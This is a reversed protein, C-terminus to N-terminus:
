PIAAGDDLAPWVPEARLVLTLGENEGCDAHGVFRSTVWDDKFAFIRVTAGNPMNNFVFQGDFTLATARWPVSADLSEAYLHAGNAPLGAPDYVRGTVVAVECGFGPASAAMSPTPPATPPVCSALVMPGALKDPVLSPAVQLRVPAQTLAHPAVVPAPTVNCGAALAALTTVRLGISFKTRSM